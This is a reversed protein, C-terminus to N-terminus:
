KKRLLCYFFFHFNYNFIKIYFDKLKNKFFSYFSLILGILIIFESYIALPAFFHLLLSILYLLILGYFFDLNTIFINKDRFFITKFLYSYGFISFIILFNILALFIM